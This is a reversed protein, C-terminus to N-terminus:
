VVVGVRRSIDTPCLSISLYRSKETRIRSLEPHSTIADPYRTTYTLKAVELSKATNLIKEISDNFGYDRPNEGIAIIGLVTQLCKDCKGCNIDVAHSCVKVYLTDLLLEKRMKSLGVVKDQRSYDFADHVVSIGAVKINGEIFPGAANPFGFDWTDSSAIYLHSLGKTFLLPMVLGSWGIDEVMLLRWEHIEPSMSELVSHKRFDSFNSRLFTNDHGYTRGFELMERKRSSWLKKSKTPIDVQGWGTILLQKKDRHFLSSFVSDLGNSFLMGIQDNVSSVLINKVLREPILEGDWCTKPYIVKFVEKLRQISYYLEEDMAEISYTEGSIWVISIVNMIFPVTLITYDLQTLDLDDYEVFFEKRLYKKKFAPNAIVSMTRKNSGIELAKILPIAAQKAQVFLSASCIWVISIRRSM